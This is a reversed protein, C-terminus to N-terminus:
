PRWDAIKFGKTGPQYEFNGHSHTDTEGKKKDHGYPENWVTLGFDHVENDLLLWRDHPLVAPANPPRVDVGVGWIHGDSGIGGVARNHAPNRYTSVLVLTDDATWLRDLGARLSDRVIAWAHYNGKGGSSNGHTGIM